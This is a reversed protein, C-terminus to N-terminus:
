LKWSLRAGINDSLYELNQMAESHERIESLIQADAAAFGGADDDTATAFGNGTALGALIVVCLWVAVRQFRM